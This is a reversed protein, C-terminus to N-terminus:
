FGVQSYCCSLSPKFIWTITFYFFHCPLLSDPFLNEGSVRPLSRKYIFEEADINYLRVCGDDCAVALSPNEDRSQVHLESSNSDDDSESCDQYGNENDILHGNQMDQAKVKRDLGRSNCPAAAIQWISVGISELVTQSCYGDIFFLSILIVVFFPKRRLIFISSGSVWFWTSFKLM